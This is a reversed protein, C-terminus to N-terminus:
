QRKHCRDLANRLSGAQQWARNHRNLRKCPYFTKSLPARPWIATQWHQKKKPPMLIAKLGVIGVAALIGIIAVVVLLEIFSFVASVRSFM